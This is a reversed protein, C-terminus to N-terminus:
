NTVKLSDLHDKLEKCRATYESFKVRGPNGGVPTPLKWRILMRYITPRSIGLNGAAKIVDYDAEVIAELVAVRILHDLKKM